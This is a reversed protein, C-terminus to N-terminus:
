NFYSFSLPLDLFDLAAFTLTKQLTRAFETRLSLRASASTGICGFPASGPGSDVSAGYQHCRKLFARRGLGSPKKKQGAKRGGSVFRV